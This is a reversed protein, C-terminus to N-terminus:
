FGYISREKPSITTEHSKAKTEHSKAKTLPNKAEIRAFSLCCCMSSVISIREGKKREVRLFLGGRGEKKRKEKPTKRENHNKPSMEHSKPTSEHIKSGM